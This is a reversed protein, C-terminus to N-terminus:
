HGAAKLKEDILVKIDDFDRFGRRLRGNVFVTPTATVGVAAGEKKQAMIADKVSNDAVCADYAATKLGLKAIEDRSQQAFNEPTIKAQEAYYFDVMKWFDSAKQRAACDTAVAAALAWPHIDLPYHKYILRVQAPTYQKYLDAKLLDHAHKCYACELDSYEVITVPATASGQAHGTKLNIGKMHQADPSVTLDATFGWFYTRNDTTIYIDYPSGGIVVSLKNLNGFSSPQPEGNVVVATRTDLGLTERLNEATKNADFPPNPAALAALTFTALVFTTLLLRKM